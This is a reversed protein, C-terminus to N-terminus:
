IKMAVALIRKLNDLVPLFTKADMIWAFAGEKGMDKILVDKLELTKQYVERQRQKWDPIENYLKIEFGSKRLYPRYDKIRDSSENEWTTFVFYAKSCLIRAAESIAALPEPVFSLADISVAGDFSDSPFNLSYMNGVQFEATGNLKFDVLHQKAQKIANESLDIGVYNAGTERALWLGPGARGCGLDILKKGPRLNLNKAINLLDTLTVFSDPNAEEPYDDGYVERFIDRFSESRENKFALEFLNKLNELVKDEKKQSM